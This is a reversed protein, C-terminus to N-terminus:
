RGVKPPKAPPQKAPKPQTTPQAPTKVSEVAAPPPVSEPAPATLTTEPAAPKPKKETKKSPCGLAFVLAVIACAAILKKV